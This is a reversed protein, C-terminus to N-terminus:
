DHEDSGAAARPTGSRLLRWVGDTLEDMGRALHRRYTSFPIGLRRAAGKQTPTGSLYTAVVADHGQLSREDGRMSDLASRVLSRVAADVARPDPDGGASAGPPAAVRALTTGALALPRRWLGLAERVAGDLDPRAIPPRVDQPAQSGIVELLWDEFRYGRWDRGFLAHLHGDLEVRQGTDLMAGGLRREWAPPDPYVLFGARIASDRAVRALAFWYTLVRAHTGDPVDPDHVVFRAVAFEDGDRLGVDTCFAWAARLVPDRALDEEPPPARFTLRASFAVVERSESSRYLTFATPQRELWYEVLATSEDGLLRRSLTLVTNGDLPDLAEDTVAGRGSWTFAESLLDRYLFLLDGMTEVAERESGTRVTALLHDSLSTRMADLAARDRWKLDAVLAERVVDHPFVGTPSSDIYPQERLWAFLGEADHEPLTTRLTRETTTAALAAVELARRHASTPVDGVLRALLTRLIEASPVWGEGPHSRTDAVAVALSLTLPNGGAFRIVSDHLAAPLGAAGLLQQAESRPLPGLPLESMAAHWGPDIRWEMDPAERGAVVVLTRDSTGPLVRERLVPGLWSCQEVTDVLVVPDDHTRADAFLDALESPRRLDRGDVTHVSRGTARARAEVWHLLSSKGVGGPGHVWFVQVGDSDGAVAAGLLGTETPRGM